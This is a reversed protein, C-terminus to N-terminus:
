RASRQVGGDQVARSAGRTLLLAAMVACGVVGVFSATGLEGRVAYSSVSATFVGTCMAFSFALAPVAHRRPLVAAVLLLGCLILDPVLFLNDGRWSDHLFLFVFTGASFIVALVRSATILEM